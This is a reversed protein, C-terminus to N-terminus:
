VQVIVSNLTATPVSDDSITVGILTTAVDYPVRLALKWHSDASATATSSTDVGNIVAYGTEIHGDTLSNGLITFNGFETVDWQYTTVFDFSLRNYKNITDIDVVSTTLNIFEFNYGALKLDPLDTRIFVNMVNMPVPDTTLNNDLYILVNEEFEAKVYIDPMEGEPEPEPEPESEPEPEILDQIIETTLGEAFENSLTVNLLMTYADYPLRYVLKWDNEVSIFDSTTLGNVIALGTDKHGVQLNVSTQINYMEYYTWAFTSFDFRNYKLM